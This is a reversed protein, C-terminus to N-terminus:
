GDSGEEEPKLGDIDCIYGVAQELTTTSANRNMEALIAKVAAVRSADRSATDRTGKLWDKLLQIEEDKSLLLTERAAVETIAATERAPAEGVQERLAIVDALANSLENQLSDREAIICDLQAVVDDPVYPPSIIVGAEEASKLARQYADYAANRARLLEPLQEEVIGALAKLCTEVEQEAKLRKESDLKAQLRHAEMILSAPSKCMSDMKEELVFNFKISNPPIFNSGM